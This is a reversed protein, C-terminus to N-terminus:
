NLQATTVKKTYNIIFKDFNLNHKNILTAIDATLLVLHDKLHDKIETIFLMLNQCLSDLEKKNMVYFEDPITVDSSVISSCHIMIVSYKKDKYKKSFWAIDGHCKDIYEKSIVDSTAQHKCPFLIFNDDSIQWLVDLTTKESTKEPRYSLNAGLFDGLIKLSSEFSNAKIKKSFILNSINKVIDDYDITNITKHINEIQLNISHKSTIKESWPKIVAKNDKQASILTKLSEETNTLYYYRSLREKLFGKIKKDKALNVAEIQKKQANNNQKLIALEFAEKALLEYKEIVTNDNYKLNGIIEKSIKCWEPDRIFFQKLCDKISNLVNDEKQLSDLLQKSLDIQKRTAESFYQLNNNAFIFNSMDNDTIIIACWDLKGRVGRGMGQEIISIKNKNYVETNNLLVEFAMDQATIAVPMCDFVILRCCDHPLDIGNYRNVLVRIGYKPEKKFKSIFEEINEFVIEAGAKRWVEARKLSPTLVIVSCKKSYESIIEFIKASDIDKDLYKPSIIMRDGIDGFNKPVIKNNIITEDLDLDIALQADDIFTASMYIINQATSIPALNAINYYMPFVYIDNATIVAECHQICNKILPYTFKVDTSDNMSASSLNNAINTINGLWTYFPIRMTSHPINNCIDNYTSIDQHKLDNSFINLLRTYEDTSKSIRVCFQNKISRICAHADDFIIYDPTLNTPTYVGFVSKGNILKSINCILISLGDLYKTDEPDETFEIGLNKSEEIVQMKLLNDPVVYAAKRKKESLLTHLILLGVLTKGSGTNMKILTNKQKRENFWKDLVDSQVDHLYSFKTQSLKNFLERPSDPKESHSISKLNLNKFNIM